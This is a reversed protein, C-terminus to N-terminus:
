NCNRIKKDAILQMLTVCHKVTENIDAPTKDLTIQSHDLELELLSM